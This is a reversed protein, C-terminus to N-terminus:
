DKDAKPPPSPPPPPPAPRAKEVSPNSPKGREV